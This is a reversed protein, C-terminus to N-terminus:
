DVEWKDETPFVDTACLDIVLDFGGCREVRHDTWFAQFM